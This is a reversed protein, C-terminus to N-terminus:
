SKELLKTMDPVIALLAELSDGGMKKARNPSWGENERPANANDKFPQELTFAIGGFTEALYNSCIALNANGKRAKPYGFETQFENSSKLLAECYRHRMEEQMETISPVGYGGTLFVYPLSEDGHVDLCFDVGTAQMKERVYYVEPTKERSPNSWARNLDQGCGNTRIHGRFSGDPNMNPIVFFNAKNRLERATSDHEDLLRSLLGDIWWEAMTEGPHQRGIFWCAPLLRDADGVQICEIERGDISNGLVEIEVGPSQRCREILASHQDLDYPAFYAFRVRDTTARHHINLTAGDYRTDVRRWEINDASACARYNEWGKTFAAEGANVINIQCDLGKADVLDFCFWQRFDTGADPVIALDIIGDDTIRLLKANGGDFDSVINM